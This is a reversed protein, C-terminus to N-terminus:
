LLTDIVDEPADDFDADDDCGSADPPVDDTVM